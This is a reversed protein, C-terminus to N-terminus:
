ISNCYADRSTVTVSNNNCNDYSDTVPYVPYIQGKPCVCRFRAGNVEFVVTARNPAFHATYGPALPDGDPVLVSYGDSIPYFFTISSGSKNVVRVSSSDCIYKAGPLRVVGDALVSSSCIFLGGLAVTGILKGITMKM